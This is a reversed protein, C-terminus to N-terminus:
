NYPVAKPSGLNVWTLNIISGKDELYPSFSLFKVLSYFFLFVVFLLALCLYSDSDDSGASINQTLPCMMFQGKVKQQNTNCCWETCHQPFPKKFFNFNIKM